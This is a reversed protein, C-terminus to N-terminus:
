LDGGNHHHHHHGHDHDHHDHDHHDHDHHHHDDDNGYSVKVDEPNVHHVHEDGKPEPEDDEEDLDVQVEEVKADKPIGLAGNFIKFFRASFAHPDGITYGSNLAAAEYLLSALDQTETDPEEGSHDKVRELLEKIVPHNPNIELIRKSNAMPNGQGYAQAKQISEMRASYGYSTAVVVCPDDVLRDSVTVTDLQEKLTNKWWDTLPEYIKKLKKLRKKEADSDTPMKFDGKAVNVLKKKEYENLHQM